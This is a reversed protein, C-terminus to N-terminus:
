KDFIKRIDRAIASAVPADRKIMLTHVEMIDRIEYDFKKRERKLWDLISTVGDKVDLINEELLFRLNIILRCSGHVNPRPLVHRFDDTQRGHISKISMTSRRASEPVVPMRTTKRDLASCNKNSLKWCLAWTACLATASSRCRATPSKEKTEIEAWWFGRHGLFIRDKNLPELIIVHDVKPM